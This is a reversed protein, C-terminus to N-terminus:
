KNGEEKKTRTEKRKTEQKEKKEKRKTDTRETGQKKETGETGTIKTGKIINKEKETKRGKFSDLM